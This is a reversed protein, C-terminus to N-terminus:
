GLNNKFIFDRKNTTIIPPSLKKRKRENEGGIRRSLIDCIFEFSKVRIKKTTNEAKVTM